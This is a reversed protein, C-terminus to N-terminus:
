RTPLAPGNLTNIAEHVQEEIDERSLGAPIPNGFRFTITGAHRVFAGRPCLRGSDLAVPVVPIDLARYLGAFGPKLPPSEGHPVRTGEPFILVARGEAKAARAAGLMARLARSSGARDVPIVGYLMAVRGWFPIRTLEEKLVVAPSQGLLDLLAVTEFAAEHKTAYIVTGRVPIRGESVIRIGLVWRAVFNHMRAWGIAIRRVMRTGVLVALLALLVYPITVIMFVARFLVTRIFAIM